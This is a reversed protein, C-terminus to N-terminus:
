EWILRVKRKVPLDGDTLTLNDPVCRYVVPLGSLESIRDSFPMAKEIIENTTEFSMNSNNVLGTCKLSCAQEIEHMLIVTEEASVDIARYMNFVYLMDCDGSYKEIAHRYRGLAFAGADSGGVDIVTHDHNRVIQEIDFNLVPIDLNTNAFEPVIIDIGNAKMEETFDATRFYPNVTDLDVVATTGHEKMMLALNVALNTKGCGYEGTIITIKRFNM